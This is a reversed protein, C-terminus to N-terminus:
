TPYKKGRIDTTVDRREYNKDTRKREKIQGAVTEELRSVKEFVM